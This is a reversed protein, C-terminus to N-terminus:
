AGEYARKLTEIDLKQMQFMAAAARQYGESEHNKFLEAVITPVIQWSVGFRDKLWGCQQARPDGGESLKEWFYDLEAQTDCHVQFSIAETFQFMPGGNLATFEQGDLEFVVTMVAGAPQQHFEKGVESFRSVAVIRSNSFIGTYFAAAEEARGDFWLCPTISRSLKM